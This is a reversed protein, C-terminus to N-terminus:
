CLGCLGDLRRTLDGQLAYWYVPSVLPKLLLFFFVFSFAGDLLVQSLDERDKRIGLDLLFSLWPQINSLFVTASEEGGIGYLRFNRPVTVNETLRWREERGVSFGEGHSQINVATGARRIRQFSRFTIFVRESFQGVIEYLQLIQL